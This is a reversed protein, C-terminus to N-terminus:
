WDSDWCCPDPVSTSIQPYLFYRFGCLYFFNHLIARCYFCYLTHSLAVAISFPHASFSSGSFSVQHASPLDPSLLSGSALDLSNRSTAIPGCHEISKWNGSTTITTKILYFPHFGSWLPKLLLHYFFFLIFGGCICVIRKLTQTFRLSWIVSPRLFIKLNIALIQLREYLGMPHTVDFDNGLAM